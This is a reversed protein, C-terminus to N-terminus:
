TPPLTMVSSDEHGIKYKKWKIQVLKSVFIGHLLATILIQCSLLNLFNNVERAKNPIERYIRKLVALQQSAKRCIDSIYNNFNLMFDINVGLLTINEDCKVFTDNLKFSSIAEHSKQGICIAQFKFPQRVDM